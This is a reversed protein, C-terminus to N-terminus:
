PGFGARCDWRACSVAADVADWGLTRHRHGVGRGRPCSPTLGLLSKRSPSLSFKGSPNNQRLQPAPPHTLAGLANLVPQAGRFVEHAVAILCHPNTRAYVSLRSVNASTRKSACLPSLDCMAGRGFLALSRVRKRPLPQRRPRAIVDAATVRQVLVPSPRVSRRSSRPTM